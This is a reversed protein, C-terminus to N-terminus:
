HLSRVVVNDYLVECEGKGGTYAALAVRGSPRANGQDDYNIKLRGNVFVRYRAGRAEIRLHHWHSNQNPAANKDLPKDNRYLLVDDYGDGRLDVGVGEEGDVRVAVGKDAGRMGCVDLDVSYDQWRESGFYALAKEQKVNLLVAKLRGGQVSWPGPPSLTWGALDSGSFREALLETGKGRERPNAEALSVGRGRGALDDLVYDAGLGVVVLVAL